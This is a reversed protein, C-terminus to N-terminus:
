EAMTTAPRNSSRCCSRKVDAADARNPDDASVQYRAVTTDGSSDTYNVFFLGSEAYNPAFALGLLGQESRATM